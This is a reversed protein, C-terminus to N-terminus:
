NYFLEVATAGKGYERFDADYVELANQDDLFLRVEDKLVGMGVGHIIVIKRIRRSRAKKFFTRLERIQKNLIEQNSWGSHSDTLEEIHLDLEWVEIPKRSGTLKGESVVHKAMSFSEDDNVGNIKSEDIHYQESHVAAIEGQMFERDFGDEDEIIYLGKDSINQIVGGGPEHLFVIKQGIQFKM